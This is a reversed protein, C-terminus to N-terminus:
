TEVISAFTGFIMRQPQLADEMKPMREDPMMNRRRANRAQNDKRV